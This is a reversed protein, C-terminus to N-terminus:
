GFPHRPRSPTPPLPEDRKAASSRLSAVKTRLRVLDVSSTSPTGGLALWRRGVADDHAKVCAERVTSSPVGNRLAVDRVSAGAEVDRLWGAHKAELPISTAVLALYKLSQILQEPSPKFKGFKDLWGFLGSAYAAVRKAAYRPREADIEDLLLTLRAYDDM